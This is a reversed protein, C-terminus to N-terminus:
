RKLKVNKLIEQMVNSQIRALNAACGCPAAVINGAFVNKIINQNLSTKSDTVLTVKLVPM